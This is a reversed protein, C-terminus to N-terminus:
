KINRVLVEKRSIMIVLLAFVFMITRSALSNLITTLIARLRKKKNTLTVKQAISEGRIFKCLDIRFSKIPYEFLYKLLFRPPYHNLIFYIRKKNHLYMGKIPVYKWSASGYHYVIANPAVVVKYGAKRVRYCLDIDAPPRLLGVKQLVERKVALAAGSVYDVDEVDDFQGKDEQGAGVNEWYGLFKERYGLSQIVKSGPYYLKCGVVGVKPNHAKKVIEKIWNEDVITDNNLLVIIDGSARKIGINNGNCFGLNKPNEILIVQPFENKIIERSGDTSANDVVIIELNQYNTKIVSTLCQRIYPKGNWNLIIISVRPFQNFRFEMHNLKSKRDSLSSGKNKLCRM